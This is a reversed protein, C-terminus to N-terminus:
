TGPIVNGVLKIYSSNKIDGTMSSAVLGVAQLRFRVPAHPLTAVPIRGSHTDESTLLSGIGKSFTAVGVWSGTILHPGATGSPDTYEERAAWHYILSGVNTSILNAFRQTFGIELKHLRLSIGPDILENLMEAVTTGFTIVSSRQVGDTALLGASKDFGFVREYDINLGIRAGGPKTVTM